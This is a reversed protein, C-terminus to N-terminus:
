QRAQQVSSLDDASTSKTQRSLFAYLHVLPPSMTLFSAYLVVMFIVILPIRLLDALDKSVLGVTMGLAIAVVFLGIFLVLTILMPALAHFWLTVWFYGKTLQHSRSIADRPARKELCVMMTSFSSKIAFWIGPLFLVLALLFAIVNVLIAVLVMKWQVANDTISYRPVGENINSWVAQMITYQIFIMSVMAALSPIFGIMPLISHVISCIVLTGALLPHAKVSNIVIPFNSKWVSFFAPPTASDPASNSSTM